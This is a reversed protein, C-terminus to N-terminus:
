GYGSGYAAYRQAPSYLPVGVAGPWYSRGPRFRLRVDSGARNPGAACQGARVASPGPRVLWRGVSQGAPSRRPGAARPRRRCANGVTPTAQVMWWRDLVYSNSPIPQTYELGFGGNGALSEGAVPRRQRSLRGSAVIVALVLGLPRNM